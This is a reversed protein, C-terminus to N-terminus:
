MLQTQHYRLWGKNCIDLCCKMGACICTYSSQRRINLCVWDCRFCVICTDGFPAMWLVHEGELHLELWKMGQLNLDESIHWHTTLCVTGSTKFCTVEKVKLTLCCSCLSKPIDSSSVWHCVMVSSIQVTLSVVALVEFRLNCDVNHFCLTGDTEGFSLPTFYLHYCMGVKETTTSTSTLAHHMTAVKWVWFSLWSMCMPTVKCVCCICYHTGKM